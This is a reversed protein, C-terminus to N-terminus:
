PKVLCCRRLVEPVPMMCPTGGLIGGGYKLIMLTLDTLTVAHVVDEKLKLYVGNELCYLGVLTEMQQQPASRVVAWGRSLIRTAGTGVTGRVDACQGASGGHSAVDYFCQIADSDFQDFNSKDQYATAADLGSLVAKENPRPLGHNM